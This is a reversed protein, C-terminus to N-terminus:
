KEDYPKDDGKPQSANGSPADTKPKQGMRQKLAALEDEFGQFCPTFGLDDWYRRWLQRVTDIDAPTAPTRIEIM